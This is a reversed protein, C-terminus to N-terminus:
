MVELDEVAAALLAALDDGDSGLEAAGETLDFAKGSALWVNRLARPSLRARAPEALANGIHSESVGSDKALRRLGGHGASEVWQQLQQKAGM